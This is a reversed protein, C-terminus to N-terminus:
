LGKEQRSALGKRCGTILHRMESLRKRLTGRAVRLMEAMQYQSLPRDGEAAQAKLLEWLRELQDRIKSSVQYGVIKQAMCELLKLYAEQDEFDSVPSALPVAEVDDEAEAPAREPALEGLEQDYLSRWLRRCREKIPGVLSKFRFGDIASRRLDAVASALGEVTKLRSNRISVVINKFLESPWHGVHESIAEEKSEAPHVASLFSLLTENRLKGSREDLVVMQRDSVLREIACCTMDYAKYGVPDHRKQRDHVFYGINTVVAGDVSSAVELLKKLSSLHDLVAAVYCDVEIEDFARPDDWSEVGESGLYRPSLSWLGRRKIKRRLVSRVKRRVVAFDESPDKGPELARIHDTFVLDM